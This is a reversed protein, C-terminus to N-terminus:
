EAALRRLYMKNAYWEIDVDCNKFELANECPSPSAIYFHGNLVLWNDEKEISGNPIELASLYEPLRMDHKEIIMTTSPGPEQELKFTVVSTKGRYSRYDVDGELTLNEGLPMKARDNGFNTEYDGSALLQGSKKKFIFVRDGMGQGPAPWNMLRMADEGFANLYEGYEREFEPMSKDIDVEWAGVYWSENTGDLDFASVLKEYPTILSLLVGILTLVLGIFGYKSPLSWKNWQKKSPFM